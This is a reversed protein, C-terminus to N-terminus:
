GKDDTENTERNLMAKWTPVHGVYTFYVAQDPNFEKNYYKKIQNKFLELHGNQEAFNLDEKKSFTIEFTPWSYSTGFKLTPLEIQAIRFVEEFDKLQRSQIRKNKLWQFGIWLGVLLVIYLIFIM